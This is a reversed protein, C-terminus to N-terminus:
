IKKIIVKGIQKILVFNVKGGDAKKDQLFADELEELPCPLATPLGCSIFDKAISDALGPAAYGLEESKVAAQVVGIAVAEGHNYPSEMGRSHQFWEIAHAYTHGLNLVRRKDKDFIDKKVIKAKFKAASEILSQLEEPDRNGSLVAVAKRYSVEDKIIFTKLMEAAGANFDRPPLTDLVKTNIFTFEPQKISGLINKYSDLNVGTKGGIAADVQALLTTPINAYRIGRKYISAAFGVLDTTIGGGVAVLLAKRDAGKSLLWKCIDMVYDMTKASESASIAFSPNRGAIKLAFDEVNRDYVVFISKYRMLLLKLSASSNSVKIKIKEM